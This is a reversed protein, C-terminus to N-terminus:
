AVNRKGIGRYTAVGYAWQDKVRIPLVDNSFMLGATPSVVALLQPPPHMLGSPEDAYSMQIIPAMNPDAIYAWDTADTFEPVALPIPRPDGPRSLGYPNVVTDTTDPQGAIGSGYGFDVLAGDYLDAPGLWFKPWLGQRKSSGLETQKFCETRAAAWAAWSYATTAVNGHDAHFLVVSDQDLTPGTGTAQTFIAAIAASRTQVASVVLERPIARMQAIRSNRLMKETIGVYGGYKTFADTEKTDAPTLETYAGGEAIVPLNAFGGFQIWAMDHLSGDNPQVVVIQEFWRYTSLRDYKEVIVKNMANVAMDALTTTDAAALAAREDFRGTLEGDGTIIRYLALTNRLEPPPLAAAAVGFVWDWANQMQDLGTLMAGQTIPDRAARGNDRIVGPEVNAAALQTLRDVAASLADLRDSIPTPAAPPALAELRAILASVQTQDISQVPQTAAPQLPAQAPLQQPDADAPNHLIDSMPLGGVQAPSGPRAPRALSLASRIYGGAGPAYVVDVSEVHHIVDTIRLGEEEDYVTSHYFVASLGTSPVELGAALDALMQEFLASVAAVAPLGERKDYLRIKGIIASEEESWKADFTVGCLNAVKPTQHYGFGFMEPHDLYVSVGDFLPAAGALVRAPILWNSPQNNAQIVRGAKTFICEYETRGKETVSRDARTGTLQLLVRGTNLLGPIPTPEPEDIMPDIEKEKREKNYKIALDILWKLIVPILIGMRLLWAVYRVWGAVTDPHETEWDWTTVPENTPIYYCYCGPHAPLPLLTTESFVRGIFPSCMWCPTGHPNNNCYLWNISGFADTIPDTM